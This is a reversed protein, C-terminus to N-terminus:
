DAYAAEIRRLRNLIKLMLQRQTARPKPISPLFKSSRRQKKERHRAEEARLWAAMAKKEARFATKDQPPVPGRGRKRSPRLNDNIERQPTRKGPESIFLVIGGGRRDRGRYRAEEAKMFAEMAKREQKFATKDQPELHM